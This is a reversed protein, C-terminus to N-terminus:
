SPNEVLKNLEIYHNDNESVLKFLEHVKNQTKNLEEFIKGRVTKCLNYEYEIPNFNILEDWLLQTEIFEDSDFKYHKHRTETKPCKHWIQIHNDYVDVIRISTSNPDYLGYLFQSEYPIFTEDYKSHIEYLTDYYNKIETLLDKLLKDYLPITMKSQSNAQLIQEKLKILKEM